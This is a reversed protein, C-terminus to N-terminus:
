DRRLLHVDVLFSNSGVVEGLGLSRRQRRRALVKAARRRHVLAVTAAGAAFTTVALAAAQRSPVLGPPTVPQAVAAHAEWALVPLGDVVEAEDFTFDPETM